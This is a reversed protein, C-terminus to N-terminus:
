LSTPGSRLSRSRALPGKGRRPVQSTPPDPPSLLPLRVAEWATFVSGAEDSAGTGRSGARRLPSPSPLTVMLFAVAKTRRRPSRSRLRLVAGILQPGGREGAPTDRNFDRWARSEDESNTSLKVRSRYSPTEPLYGDFLSKRVPIRTAIHQSAEAFKSQCYAPKPSTAPAARRVRGEVEM